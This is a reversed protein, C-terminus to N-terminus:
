VSIWTYQGQWKVLRVSQIRRIAFYRWCHKQRQHWITV